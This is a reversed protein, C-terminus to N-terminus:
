SWVILTESSQHTWSVLKDSAYHINTNNQMTDPAWDSANRRNVLSFRSNQAIQLWLRELDQSVMPKTKYVHWRENNRVAWNSHSVHVSDSTDSNRVAWNNHSVKCWWRDNRKSFKARVNRVSNVNWLMSYKLHHLKRSALSSIRKLSKESKSVLTKIKSRIPDGKM